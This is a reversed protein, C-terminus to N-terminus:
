GSPAPLAFRSVATCPTCRAVATQSRACSRDSNVRPRGELTARRVGFFRGHGGGLVRRVSEDGLVEGDDAVV